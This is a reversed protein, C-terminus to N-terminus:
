RSYHDKLKEVDKYMAGYDTNRINDTAYDMERGMGTTRVNLRTIMELVELMAEDATMEPEESEEPETSVFYDSVLCFTNTCRYVVPHGDPVEKKVGVRGCRDGPCRKEM